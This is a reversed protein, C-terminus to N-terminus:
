SCAEHCKKIYHCAHVNVYRHGHQTYKQSVRQRWRLTALRYLVPKGGMCRQEIGVGLVRRSPEEGPQPQEDYKSQVRSEKEGTQEAYAEHCNKIYHRAHVNVYM